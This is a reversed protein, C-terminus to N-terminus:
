FIKNSKKSRLELKSALTRLFTLIWKNVASFWTEQSITQVFMSNLKSHENFIREIWKSKTLFSLNNYLLENTDTTKNPKSCRKWMYNWLSVFLYYSLETRRNCLTGLLFFWRHKTEEIGFIFVFKFLQQLKAYNIKKENM